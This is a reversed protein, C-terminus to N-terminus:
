VVRALHIVFLVNRLEQRGKPQVNQPDKVAMVKARISLKNGVFAPVGEMASLKPLENVCSVSPNLESEDINFRKPSAVLSSRKSAVVEFEEGYRSKQIVCNVLSISEGRSKLGKMENLMSPDFSVLRRVVKGDTLKGDFYKVEDNNRSKKM